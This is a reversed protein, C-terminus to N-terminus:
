QENAEEEKKEIYDAYQEGAKFVSDITPQKVTTDKDYKTIFEWLENFYKTINNDIDLINVDIFAQKNYMVLVRLFQKFYNINYDAIECMIDSFLAEKDSDGSQLVSMNYDSIKAFYKNIGDIHQKLKKFNHVQKTNQRIGYTDEIHKKMNVYLEYVSDALTQILIINIVDENYMQKITDDHKTKYAKMLSDTRKKIRNRDM